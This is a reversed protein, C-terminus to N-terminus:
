RPPKPSRSARRARGPPPLSRGCPGRRPCRRQEPRGGHSRQLRCTLLPKPQKGRPTQRRRSVYRAHILSPSPQSPLAESKRPAQRQGSVKAEGEPKTFTLPHSRSQTNRATAYTANTSTHSQKNCNWTNTCGDCCCYLLLLGRRHQTFTQEEKPAPQEDDPHPMIMAQSQDRRRPQTTTSANLVQRKIM